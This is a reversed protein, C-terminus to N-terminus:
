GHQEPWPPLTIGFKQGLHRVLVDYIDGYETKSAQTTSEHGYMAAELPKWLHEKVTYDTWPIDVDERIVARMDLNNENLCDALQRLWLHLANNQTPTRTGTAEVFEVVVKKGSLLAQNVAEDFNRRKETTSLDWRVGM